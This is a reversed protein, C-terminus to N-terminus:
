RNTDFAGALEAFDSGSTSATQTVWRSPGLDAAQGPKAKRKKRWGCAWARVRPRMNVPGGSARANNALTKLTSPFFFTKWAGNDFGHQLLRAARNNREKATQGGLVVAVLRQGGRTASSVINFGSACVFGTKMGDAGDFTRLLMNYSRLRIKGFRMRSKTFLAAHEPFRVIIARALVGMDRATTRQAPDHLGNPNVFNTRTMGLRKATENMRKAFAPVNGSIKEAFMIAVDNASKVVLADLGVAVTMQGGIPLGIKSPQVKHAAKSTVIKDDMKLRGAKLEEFVIFTTMLKTLSAPYWLTDPEDAYIVAGNSADFLIAPGSAHGPSVATMALVFPAFLAPLLVRWMAREDRSGGGNSRTM